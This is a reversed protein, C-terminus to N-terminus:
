KRGDADDSELGLGLGLAKRSWGFWKAMRKGMSRLMIPDIKAIPHPKHFVIKGGPEAQNSSEFLVASGGNCRTTFGVDIMAHVFNDWNVSKCAGEEEECPFMLTFVEAARKTISISTRVARDPEADEGPAEAEIDPENAPKEGRTKIKQRPLTTVLGAKSGSKAEDEFRTSPFSEIKDTNAIVIEEESSVANIYQPSLNASIIQLLSEKEALSFACGDFEHKIIVRMTAWFKELAARSAQSQRLWKVDNPGALSKRQYFDEFLASGMAIMGEASVPPERSDADAELKLRKWGERDESEILDESTRCSKQPRHLRVLLLIEHCTSIDSLIQYIVRDLRAREKSTATALHDHLFAFLMAHDFHYEDYNECLMHTLCWDLPDEALHEKTDASIKRSLLAFGPSLDADHEIKWYKSFGAAVPLVDNLARTRYIVQEVLITELASLARDYQLPLPQGPCASHGFQKHMDDVHRCEIEIWRWWYYSLVEMNMSTYLLAGFTSKPMKKYTKADVLIKIYRRMYAGDCQLDWLHDGMADLRTKALSLLYGIDLLPPASFAQNIYPSWREVEGTRKFGETTTLEQWKETRVPQASDFGDLINDVINCLTKMLYAQAEMVLRARPFGVIDGRHAAGVEWDVLDGYKSGFMVVCMASYDVDLWGRAWSLAIQRYDFAAWDQPAYHTRYRLLAFLTAPNTKLIEISLWPLLLQRRRSQSRSLILNREDMYSYRFLIWQKEELDPAVNKLLVQRKDQSLKKWRAMIVDAHLMLVGTLRARAEQTQEVYSRIIDKAADESLHRCYSFPPQYQEKATYFGTQCVECECPPHRISAKIASGRAIYAPNSNISNQSLSFPRM